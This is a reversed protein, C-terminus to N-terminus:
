IQSHKRKGLSTHMKEYHSLIQKKTIQEKCVCCTLYPRKRHTDLHKKQNSTQNFVLGCGDVPCIYPKENTHIRLHDFLNHWKRFIKGCNALDCAFINSTRNTTPNYFKVHSLVRTNPVHVKGEFISMDIEEGRYYEFICDQPLRFQLSIRQQLTDRPNDTPPIQEYDKM